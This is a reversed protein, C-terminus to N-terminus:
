HLKTERADHDKVGLIRVVCNAPEDNWDTRRTGLFEAFSNAPKGEMNRGVMDEVRGALKEDDDYKDGAGLGLYYRTMGGLYSLAEQQCSKKEGGIIDPCRSIRFILAGDRFRGGLSERM